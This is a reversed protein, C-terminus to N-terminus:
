RLQLQQVAITQGSKTGRVVIRLKVDKRTRAILARVKRNGDDDFSWVENTDSLLGFGSRDCIPMALCKRTHSAGLDPEKDKRERACSLDILYGEWRLTTEHPRNSGPAAGSLILIAAFTAVLGLNPTSAM